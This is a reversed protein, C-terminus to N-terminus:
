KLRNLFSLLKKGNKCDARAKIFYNKNYQKMFLKMNFSLTKVNLNLVESYQVIKNGSEPVFKDQTKSYIKLIGDQWGVNIASLGQSIYISQIAKAKTQNDDMSGSIATLPRMIPHSTATIEYGIFRGGDKNKHYEVKIDQFFKENGMGDLDIQGECSLYFNKLPENALSVSLISINILIFLFIQKM